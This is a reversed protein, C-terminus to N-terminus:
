KNARPKKLFFIYPPINHFVPVWSNVKNEYFIFTNKLELDLNATINLPSESTNLSIKEGKKNYLATTLSIGPFIMNFSLNNSPTFIAAYRNDYRSTDDDLLSIGTNPLLKKNIYLLNTKNPKIIFSIPTNNQQSVYLKYHGKQPITITIEKNRVMSTIVQEILYDYTDNQLAIFGIPTNKPNKALSKGAEYKIKIYGAKTAYLDIGYRFASYADAHILKIKISDATSSINNEFFSNPLITNEVNINDEVLLKNFEEDVTKTFNLKSAEYCANCGDYVYWKKQMATNQMSQKLSLTLQTNHFILSNYKNWTFEILEELKKDREINSKTYIDNNKVNNWVDFSKKLFVLYYKLQQIIHNTNKSNGVANEAKNLLHAFKILDDKRYTYHDYITLLHASNFYWDKMILRIYPAANGFQNKCFEDFEKELNTSPNNLFKLIFYQPIGASFMSAGTEFHLGQINKKRIYKLFNYYDTLNFFPEDASWVGINVYDYISIATKKEIWRNILGVPTSVNQYASAVITTHVNPEIKVSPTDARETYAYVNIGSTPYKKKIKKAAENAIYYAQDSVSNFAKECEPTHCYNLGDGMDSTQFTYPQIYSPIIDNTTKYQNIIWNIFTDVGKKYTPDIKAEEAYMRKGNIPALIKDDNEILKKNTINFLEGIHGGFGLYESGMRNRRFWKYWEFVNQRTEDLVNIKQMEGSISIYRVPFHPTIEKNTEKKFFIASIKPIHTWENGPLYFHFGLRELYSYLGYSLGTIYRANITITNSGNCSFFSSENKKYNINSDLLLFIGNNKNGTFIKSKFYKGTAKQLLEAADDAIIKTDFVSYYESFFNSPLKIPSYYVYITDTAKLSQLGTSFFLFVLLITKM